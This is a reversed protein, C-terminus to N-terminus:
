GAPDAAEAVSLDFPEIPDGEPSKGGAVPNEALKAVYASVLVVQNQSLRQGWAPMGKSVVGDTIVDYVDTLQAVNVWANDTLNPGTNGRGDPDHCAACNAVFIGQGLTMWKDNNAMAVLTAEDGELVGIDGFLQEFYQAKADEWRVQPTTSFVSFHGWMVYFVSFVVSGFFLLSWWGPAPNDYEQIGDYAHDKIQEPKKSM